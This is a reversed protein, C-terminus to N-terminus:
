TGYGLGFGLALSIVCSVIATGYGVAIDDDLDAEYPVVSAAFGFAAPNHSHHSATASATVHEQDLTVSTTKFARRSTERKKTTFANSGHLLVVMLLM